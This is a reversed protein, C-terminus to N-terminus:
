LMNYRSHNKGSSEGVKGPAAEINQDKLCQEIDSTSIQYANMKIPNLWVRMAYERQGM